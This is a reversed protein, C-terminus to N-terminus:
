SITKLYDLVVEGVEKKYLVRTHGLGETFYFQAHPLLQKTVEITDFAVQRDKKDHIVLINKTFQPAIKPTFMEDFSRSYKKQVYKKLFDSTKETGGIVRLFTDMVLDSKTPTNLLVLNKSTDSEALVNLLAVGGLSHGIYCAIDQFKVELLRIVEIFEFASTSTGTSHGHAPADIAIVHYNNVVLLKILEIFQIGKGAWGHQLLITKGEGWEHFVVKKERLSLSSTKATKLFSLEDKTFKIKRPIFFQKRAWNVATRTLTKEFLPYIRSIINKKPYSKKQKM